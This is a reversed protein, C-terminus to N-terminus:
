KRMTLIRPEEEANTLLDYNEKKIRYLEKLEEIDKDTIYIYSEKKEKLKDSPLGKFIVKAGKRILTTSVLIVIVYILYSLLIRTDSELVEGKSDNDTYHYNVIIVDENYIEDDGNLQSKEIKTQRIIRCKSKLEEESMAFITEPHSLDLGSYDFVTENREYNGAANQSWGTSYSLENKMEVETGLIREEMYYGNSTSVTGVEESVTISDRKILNMNLAGTVAVGATAGVVTPIWLAIYMGAATLAKRARIGNNYRKRHNVKLDLSKVEKKLKKLLKKNDM